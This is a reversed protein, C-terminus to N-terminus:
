STSFAQLRLVALHPLGPTPRQGSRCADYPSLGWPLAGADRMRAPTPLRESSSEVRSPPVPMLKRGRGRRIAERRFRPRPRAAPPTVRSPRPPKRRSSGDGHLPDDAVRHRCRPAANPRRVNEPRMSSTSVRPQMHRIGGSRDRTGPSGPAHGVVCPHHYSRSRSSSCSSKTQPRRARPNRTTRM